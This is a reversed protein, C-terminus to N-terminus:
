LPQYEELGHISYLSMDCHLSNSFNRCPENLFTEHVLADKYTETVWDGELGHSLYLSM